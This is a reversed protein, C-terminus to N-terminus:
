RQGEPGPLLEVLLGLGQLVVRGRFPLLFALSKSLLLEENAVVLLDREDRRVHM